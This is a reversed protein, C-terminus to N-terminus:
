KEPNLYKILADCKNIVYDTVEIFSGDSACVSKIKDLGTRITNLFELDLPASLAADAQQAAANCHDYESDTERYVYNWNELADRMRQCQSELALHKASSKALLTNYDHCAQEDDKAAQAEVEALRAQLDKVSEALELAASHYQDREDRVARHKACAKERFENVKAIEATAEALRTRLQAREDIIETINKGMFNAESQLRATEEDRLASLETLAPILLDRQAVKRAGVYPELHKEAIREIDTQDSM